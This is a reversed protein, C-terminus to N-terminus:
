HIIPTLITKMLEQHKSSKIHKSISRKCFISGCECTIKEKYVQQIKDKNAERWKRHSESAYKKDSKYKKKKNEPNAIWRNYASRLRLRREEATEILKKRGM